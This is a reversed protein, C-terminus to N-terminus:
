ATEQWRALYRALMDIELNVADGPQLRGLTTADWTHPIINLDFTRGDVANVTLSVGDVTISGKAAIYRHLPAPAEVVVTHSGGAPTISVVRGLGDVHGSVVHGGMEDGLRAARELNVPDGTKWGGLTTKDLTEGSVEVAFWGGGKQDPAKEVVTLCCGAHSISAGMDIGSVDWATEIEYRRDRDTAAVARVRGIDTVIGTFM